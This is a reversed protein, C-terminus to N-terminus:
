ENVPKKGFLGILDYVSPACSEGESEATTNSVRTNNPTSLRRFHSSLSTGFLTLDVRRILAQPYKSIEYKLTEKMELYGIEKWFCELEERSSLSKLEHDIRDIYCVIRKTENSNSASFLKFSGILSFYFISTFHHKSLESGKKKEIM